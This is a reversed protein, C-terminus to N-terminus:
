DGKVGCLYIYKAHLIEYNIILLLLLKIVILVKEEVYFLIFFFFLILEVVTLIEKHDFMIVSENLIRQSPELFNNAIFLNLM